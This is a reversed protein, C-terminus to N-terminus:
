MYIYLQAVRTAQWLAAISLDSFKSRGHFRRMQWPGDIRFVPLRHLIGITALPHVSVQFTHRQFQLPVSLTALKLSQKVYNSNFKLINNSNNNDSLDICVVVRAAVQARLQRLKLLFHIWSMIMM